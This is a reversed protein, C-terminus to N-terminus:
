CRGNTEEALLHRGSCDAFCGFSLPCTSVCCVRGYVIIRGRITLPPLVCRLVPPANQFIFVEPPWLPFSVHNMYDTEPPTILVNVDGRNWFFFFCSKECM